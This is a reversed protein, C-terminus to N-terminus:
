ATVANMDRIDGIEVHLRQPHKARLWRINEEVGPRALNDFVVVRRGASLLRDALNTGIFGAGGTILAVGRDPQEEAIMGHAGASSTRHESRGRAAGGGPRRAM